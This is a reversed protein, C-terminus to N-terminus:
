CYFNIILPMNGSNGCDCDPSFILILYYLYDTIPLMPELARISEQGM